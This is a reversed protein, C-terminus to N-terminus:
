VESSSLNVRSLKHYCSNVCRQKPYKPKSQRHVHNKTAPLVSHRQAITLLLVQIALEHVHWNQLSPEKATTNNHIPSLIMHKLWFDNMSKSDRKHHTTQKMGKSHQNGFSTGITKTLNTHCQGHRHNANCRKPYESNNDEVLLRLWKRSRTNSGIDTASSDKWGTWCSAVQPSTNRPSFCISDMNNYM